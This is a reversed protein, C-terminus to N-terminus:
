ARPTIAGRHETAQPAPPHPQRVVGATKSAARASQSDSNAKVFASILATLATTQATSLGIQM